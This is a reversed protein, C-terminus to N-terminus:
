RGKVVKDAVLHGFFNYHGGWVYGVEGDAYVDLESMGFLYYREEQTIPKFGDAYSGSMVEIVKYYMGEQNDKAEEGEHWYKQEYKYITRGNAHLVQYYIYKPFKAREWYSLEEYTGSKIYKKM